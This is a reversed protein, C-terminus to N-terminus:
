DRGLECDVGGLGGAVFDKIHRGELLEQVVADLDFASDAIEAIDDGDRLNAVALDLNNRVGVKRPPIQLVQVNPM